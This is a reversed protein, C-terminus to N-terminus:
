DRGLLGGLLSRKRQPTEEPEPPEDTLLGALKRIAAAAPTRHASLILPQGENVAKIFNDGDYPVDIGVKIGLHEEIQSPGIMPHAYIENVVFVARDVAKGSESIVQLAAHLLRLAPIDPTIVIVLRDAHQLVSLTRMDLTSGLDLVLTGYAHRLTEVLALLQDATLQSGDDPRYPGGFVALGGSHLKGAARISEGSDDLWEERALGATSHQGYLDVHTSVQGHYMDLDAIAVNNPAMEALVLATNVALSTTGSGGKASVFAITKGPAAHAAAVAAGGGAARTAGGRLLLAEVLAELEREDIPEVLVDDAGAELLRVRTEVDSANAIALIPAHASGAEDNIRRCLLALSAPDPAALIALQQDRLLRLADAPNSTRTVTHGAAELPRTVSDMPQGGSALVLVRSPVSRLRALPRCEEAISQRV